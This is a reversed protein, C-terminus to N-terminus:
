EFQEDSRTVDNLTLKYGLFEGDWLPTIEETARFGSGNHHRYRRTCTSSGRYYATRLEWEVSGPDVTELDLFHYLPKGVAAAASYGFLRAAAANWSVVNAAQDLTVVACHIAPASDNVHTQAIIPSVALPGRQENNTTRQKKETKWRGKKKSCSLNSWRQGARIM